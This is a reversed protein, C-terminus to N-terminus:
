RGVRVTWDVPGPPETAGVLRKLEALDEESRVTGAIGLTPNLEGRIFPHVGHFKATANVLAYVREWRAEVPARKEQVARQWAAEATRCEPCFSVRALKAAKEV